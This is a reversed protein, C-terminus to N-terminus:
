LHGTARHGGKSTAGPASTGVGAAPASPTATPSPAAPVTPLPAAPPPTPTTHAVPPPTPIQTGSSTTESQKTASSAAAVTGASSSAIPKARNITAILINALAVADAYPTTDPHLAPLLDHKSGQFAWLAWGMKNADLYDMLHQTQGSTVDPGAQHIESVFVPVNLRQAVALHNEFYGIGYPDGKDADFSSPNSHFAYIVNTTAPLQDFPADTADLHVDQFIPLINPSASRVGDYVKKYFIAMLDSYSVPKKWEPFASPENLVDIGVVTSDAAFDRLVYQMAAIYKEQLQPTGTYTDRDTFFDNQALGSKTDKKFVWLPLGAKVNGFHPSWGLQHDSFIVSLHYKKAEDVITHLAALYTTNFTGEVPELNAWSFPVRLVNFGWAAAAAFHADPMVTWGNCPEGGTVFPAGTGYEMGSFNVGRLVIRGNNPGYLETGKTHLFGGIPNIPEGRAGTITPLISPATAAAQVPSILASGVLALGTLLTTASRQWFASIM